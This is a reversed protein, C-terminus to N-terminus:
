LPFHLMEPKIKSLSPPYILFNGLTFRRDINFKEHINLESIDSLLNDIPNYVENKYDEYDMNIISIFAHEEMPDVKKMYWQLKRNFFKQAKVVDIIPYVFIVSQYKNLEEEKIDVDVIFPFLNMLEGKMLKFHPLKKIFEKTM